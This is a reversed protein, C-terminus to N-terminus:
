LKTSQMWTMFQNQLHRQKFNQRWNQVFAIRNVTIIWINIYISISWYIECFFVQKIGSQVKFKKMGFNRRICYQV